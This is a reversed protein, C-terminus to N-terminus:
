GKRTIYLLRQTTGCPKEFSDGDITDLVTLGSNQLAERLCLDSFVRESFRETERLYRGNPAPEFFDLQIDVRSTKPDYENRWVCLVQPTEYVFATNGLVERHKYATNVDFLFLGGANLFLAARDFVRRLGAEDPLHNLSDLTCVMVDVTGYLDLKRMDQQLFLIQKENEGAKQMAVSLMEASADAGTVDYQMGAFELALSGTGCAIDLLLLEGLAGSHARILADLKKARAPYDVNVTLADYYRAFAGYGSM